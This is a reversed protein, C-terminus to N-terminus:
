PWVNRKRIPGAAIRKRPPIAIAIVSRFQVGMVQNSRVERNPPKKSPSAFLLGCKTTAIGAM